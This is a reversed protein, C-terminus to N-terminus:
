FEILIGASPVRPIMSNLLGFAQATRFNITPKEFRVNDRGLANLVEVFLTLRKREWNFTRNARVDLRAYAPLRLTNRTGGVFYAGNRQTWYGVLPTNSGVRLKGALSFRNTLRYLAYGNFTHRQDFDGDFAEGTRVDRYRTLGYSYSVWGTLGTNSRRQVLLEAGRSRGSLANAWPQPDLRLVRSQVLPESGPWRLVDREERNYFTLQWRASAGLAQELGADVHYAREHRLPEQEESVAGGFPGVAEEFGPFQRYIGAGGRLKLAGPLRVEGQFWPSAAQDDTLSWRDVRAGGAITARAGPEWRAHLYASSLTASADFGRVVTSSPTQSSVGREHEDRHQRQIQAGAEISLSSSVTRSLDTRWTVDRDAGRGLEV